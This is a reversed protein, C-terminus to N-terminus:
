AEGWCVCQMGGKPEETRQHSKSLGKWPVQGYPWSWGGKSVDTDKCLYTVQLPREVPYQGTCQDGMGLPWRRIREMCEKEPEVRENVWLETQTPPPPTPSPSPSTLSLLSPSPLGKCRAAM